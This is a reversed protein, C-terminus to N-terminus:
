LANIATTLTAVQPGSLTGSYIAAAQVSGDWIAEAGGVHQALLHLSYVEGGWPGAGTTVLSGNVYFATAAMAMVGSTLVGTLVSAALGYGFVMSADDNHHPRLYFRGTSQSGMVTRSVGGSTSGGAFRAIMSWGADSPTIGTDLYMSSGNGTWGTAAAWNPAATTTLDYTGPSALNVLSAAYSAAGKGLYAGVCTVGAVTWWPLAAGGGPAVFRVGGDAPLHLIRTSPRRIM